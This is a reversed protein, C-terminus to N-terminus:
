SADLPAKGMDGFSIIQDERQHFQFNPKNVGYKYFYASSPKLETMLASRIFGPDHWGFDKAPSPLTSNCM